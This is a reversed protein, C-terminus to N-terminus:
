AVTGEGVREANPSHAPVEVPALPLRLIFTAGGTESEDVTLDGDLLRAIRRAIALGLGHGKAKSGENLRIFEEFIADRKRPPVGPGTDTVMAAAWPGGPAIEDAGRVTRVTITGPAPTYNRANSLVNDLVQRVRAPDTRLHIPEPATHLELTHGDAEIGPRHDDVVARVIATLEAPARRVSLGGSDVRAVDLLDAIIELASDVCREVGQVLPAQEPQLPAKVGMALLEAYGKAAGLPNKLDHTVGRLLRVRADNAKAVDTLAAEAEERRREAERSFDRVRRYLNAAAIAALLALLGLALTIQLGMRETAAIEGRTRATTELIVSDMAAASRLVDQFLERERPAEVPPAIGDALRRLADEDATRAHWRAALTRVRIFQQLTEPGIGAALPALDEYIKQESAFARAYSGAYTEDGSLLLDSMAAMEQVLSFQLRVVLTRTPEAARIRERLSQVRNQVLIPVVVLTALTLLVISLAVRGVWPQVRPPTQRTPIDDPM